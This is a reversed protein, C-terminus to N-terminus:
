QGVVARLGHSMAWGLPQRTDRAALQLFYESGVLTPNNPISLSVTANGWINASFPVRVVEQSLDVLLSGGFMISDDSATSVSLFGNAYSQLGSISFTVSTGIMPRADPDIPLHTPEDRLEGYPFFGASDSYYDWIGRGYTGFRIINQSPVAEVSWYTTLPAEAGLISAWTQTSPDYEYAGSQGAAYMYGSQDPAECMGYILTSPLGASKDYFSTGGNGSYMVPPNSYGSGAVWVENINTSSAIITTGYFYHAGPGNSNSQTWNVGKDTSYYIKGNSTTCWAYNPDLPSFAIATLPQSFSTNGVQSYNWTGSTGVRQYRWLRTGCLYFANKNEPDAVMFPLWQGGFGSPFDVTYLTHNPEGAVVLVFGPYDSYVLDHSGDSSSLHGYDGTIDEIFEAWPGNTGPTGLAGSQYGQDQSGAHIYKPDRRSTHTSYYQSVGLGEGTLWNVTSLQDTSEYTGGHCNIFWREGSPLSNDEIVSVGMMDAHLRHQRNGPHEWWWNFASFSTGGNDSVWLEVGGYVLLNADTASTCFASWMEPMDNPNSWSNGSNTTRYLQWTGSVRAAVSFTSTGASEHGGFRVDSPTVGLSNGFSSFTTGLNSSRLLRNNEFLFLDGVATRSSWIDAQGNLTQIHSFSAARDTSRFLQWSNSKWVLAFVTQQADNIKILRRVTSFGTIGTPNQWTLGGDTSRWLFGSSGRLIIDQGGGSPPIALLVHAGGYVGDGIAQWDSGDAPGRFVGGLASGIYLENGDTSPVTVFTSGALNTSGVENWSGTTSAGSMLAAERESQAARLNSEEIARWDVGPATRHMGEIWEERAHQNEESEESEAPRPMAGTLSPESYEPQVSCATALTLLVFAGFSWRRTSTTLLISTM